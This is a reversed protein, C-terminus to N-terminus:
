RRRGQVLNLGRGYRFHFFCQLVLIGIHPLPGDFRQNAPAVHGFYAVCQNTRICTKALCGHACNAVMRLPRCVILAAHEELQKGIQSFCCVGLVFVRALRGGLGDISQSGRQLRAPLRRGVGCGAVLVGDCHPNTLSAQRWIRAASAGSPNYQLFTDRV